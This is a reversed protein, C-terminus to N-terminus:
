NNYKKRKIKNRRNKKRNKRWKNKNKRNKKNKKVKKDSIVWKIWLGCNDDMFIVLLFREYWVEEVSEVDCWLCVYKVLDIFLKNKFLLVCVKLGYNLILNKKWKLVVLYIDFFEWFLNKGGVYCVDLLRMIVEFNVIEM